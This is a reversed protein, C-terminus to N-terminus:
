VHSPTFADGVRSKIQHRITAEEIVRNGHIEISKITIREQAGEVFGVLLLILLCAYFIARKRTVM